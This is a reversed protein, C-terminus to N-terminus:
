RGEDAQQGADDAAQDDGGEAGGAEGDAAGGGSQDGDDDGSNFGQTGEGEEQHRQYQGAHQLQQEANQPGPAKDRQNGGADDFAHQRRDADQQNHLLDGDREARRFLGSKGFHNLAVGSEGDSRKGDGRAAQEHEPQPARRKDAPHLAQAPDGPRQDGDQEAAHGGQQQGMKRRLLQGSQRTNGQRREAAEAVQQALQFRRHPVRPAIRRHPHHRYGQRQDGAEFGQQALLRQFLQARLIRRRRRVAFHDGLADAVQEGAHQPRHRDGRHDDAARHVDAIARLTFQRDKDM